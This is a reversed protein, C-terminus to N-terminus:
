LSAANSPRARNEGEDGIAHRYMPRAYHQACEVIRLVGDRVVLLGRWSTIKGGGAGHSKQYHYPVMHRSEATGQDAGVGMPHVGYRTFRVLVLSSDRTM